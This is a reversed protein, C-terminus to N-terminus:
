DAALCEFQIATFMLVSQVSYVRRPSFLQAVIITLSCFLEAGVVVTCKCAQYCWSNM